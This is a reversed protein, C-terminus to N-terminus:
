KATDYSHPLGSGTISDSVMTGLVSRPRPRMRAGPGRPPFILSWKLRFRLNCHASSFKQHPFGVQAVACSIRSWSNSGIFPTETEEFSRELMTFRKHQIWTRGGHTLDRCKRREEDDEPESMEKAGLFTRLRISMVLLEIGIFSSCLAIGPLNRARSARLHCCDRNM